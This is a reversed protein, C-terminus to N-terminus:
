KEASPLGAVSLLTPAIDTNDTLRSDSAGNWAGEPLRVLLPVRVVADYLHHNKLLRRHSGLYEGHDSTFVIVTNGYIGRSKLIGLMRGVQEDIHSITAYYHAMVRRLKREDLGDFDFHGGRGNDGHQLDATWDHPLSLAEEDYLELWRAPPDFPHHPKIFSVQLLNGCESWEDLVRCARDGTWTTSHASEPLNSTCAGYNQRYEASAGARFEKVQDVLDNVDVLGRRRLWAHYDDEWRGPGHQEALKMQEYGVDLYTGFIVTAQCFGVRFLLMTEDLFQCRLDVWFSSLKTENKASGM